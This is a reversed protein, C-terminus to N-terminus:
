FSVEEDTHAQGAGGSRKPGATAHKINLIEGGFRLADGMRPMAADRLQWVADRVRAWGEPSSIFHLIELAREGGFGERLKKAQARVKGDIAEPFLGMAEVRRALLVAMENPRHQKPLTDKKPPQKGRNLRQHAPKTKQERRAKAHTQTARQLSSLIRARPDNPNKKEDDDDLYARFEADEEAGTFDSWLSEGHHYAVNALGYGFREAVAAQVEPSQSIESLFLPLLRVYTDPTGNGRQERRLMGIDRLVRKYRAIAPGSKGTWRQFEADPITLRVWGETAEKRFAPDEAARYLRRAFVLTADNVLVSLCDTLTHDWLLRTSPSALAEGGNSGDEAM